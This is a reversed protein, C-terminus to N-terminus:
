YQGEPERSEDKPTQHILDHQPRVVYVHSRKGDLERLQQLYKGNWEM